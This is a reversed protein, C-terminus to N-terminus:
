LPVLEKIAIPSAYKRGDFVARTVVESFAQTSHYRDWFLYKERDSCYTSNPTCDSAANLRGSGCCAAISEKFGFKQPKSTLLTIFDYIDLFSYSFGHLRFSLDRLVIRMARNFKRSINNIYEVCGDGPVSLRAIPICGMPGTGSVLFKRGGRNYLSKLHIKFEHTLQEIFLDQQTENQVGSRALFQFMDNNATSFYFISKSIFNGAAKRGLRTKLSDSVSDFYRIQKSLPISNNPNTSDFIGSGGSAFNVGTAAPRGDTLSLYAPPSQRFGLQMALYDSGSYGNSFRGTPRKGPFDIGYPLFNASAPNGRLFNNNGVDVTSDGFVYIAPIADGATATPIYVAVAFGWVLLPFRLKNEM